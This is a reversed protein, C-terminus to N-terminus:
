VTSAKWLEKKKKQQENLLESWQTLLNKGITDRGEMITHKVVWGM